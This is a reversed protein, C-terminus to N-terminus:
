IIEGVLEKLMKRLQKRWHVPRIGTKKLFYRKDLISYYPRKAPTPYDDTNIPIIPIEKSLLGLALAEEQIAVAFDYWSASGADTWHNIGQQCTAISAWIVNALGKAWTPTGVQDDVVTLQDKEDMLRIMTKVFNHGHVSYLWATRIIFADKGLIRRVAKEGALKTRGYVSQPETIDDPLYPKYHTGKFVFDTSIHVLKINNNKCLGALLEVAEANIQRALRKEAEAKDVATYGAANIIYDFRDQNVCNRISSTSTFDVKPHDCTQIQVNFPCTRTLEWGLQGTAGLLLVKM